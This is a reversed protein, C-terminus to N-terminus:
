KLVAETFNTDMNATITYEPYAKQIEQIVENFVARRNKTDLSIVLDFRLDKEKEELYFGHVQSVSPHNSVIKQINTFIKKAKPNKTNYSYIGIASIVVHDQQYVKATIKRMLEDLQDANLSDPVEIHFSGISHGPGYDNLVLDYVGKVDSFTEVTKVISKAKHIDVRQGLLVSVTNKLLDIGSKIILIAIVASLWPGISIHWKIYLFAAILTSFSIFADNSADKASAILSGSDTSKGVKKFYYNLFIKTIVAVVIIVLSIVSYNPKESHIIGNVSERLAEIGAYIIIVSVVITSFYESRGYGFPHNKDPDKAALKTGIITIISSGADSLSNLGDTIIAISHTAFGATFKLVSLCINAIIGVISAKVIAKDRSQNM